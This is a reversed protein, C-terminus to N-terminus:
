NFLAIRARIWEIRTPPMTISHDQQKDDDQYTISDKGVTLPAHGPVGDWFIKYYRKALIEGQDNLITLKAKDMGDGFFHSNDVGSGCINVTYKKGEFEKIGGNLTKNYNYEQCNTNDFSKELFMAAYAILTLLIIISPSMKLLENGFSKETQYIKFAKYGFLIIILGTIAIGIEKVFYLSSFILGNYSKLPAILGIAVILLIVTIIALIILFLNIILRYFYKLMSPM